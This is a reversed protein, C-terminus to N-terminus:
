NRQKKDLYRFLCFLGNLSLLDSLNYTGKTTEPQLVMEKYTARIEDISILHLSRTGLVNKTNTFSDTNVKLEVDKKSVSGNFDIECIYVCINTGIIGTNEWYYGYRTVLHNISLEIIEEFRNEFYADFNHTGNEKKIYDRYVETSQEFGINIPNRKQILVYSTNQIKFIVIPMVAQTYRGVVLHTRHREM